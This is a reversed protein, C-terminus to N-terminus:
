EENIAQPLQELCRQLSVQANQLLVDTLEPNHVGLSSDARVFDIDKQASEYIQQIDPVDIGALLAAVKMEMVELEELANRTKTQWADM